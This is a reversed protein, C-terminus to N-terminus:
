KVLIISPSNVSHKNWRTGVLSGPACWGVTGDTKKGFCRADHPILAFPSLIRLKKDTQLTM